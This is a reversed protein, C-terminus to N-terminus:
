HQLKRRTTYKQFAIGLFIASIGLASLIFPFLLSDKFVNYSLYGLYIYIGIAGFVMVVRAGFIMIAQRELAIALGLFGLNMLLYYAHSWDGLTFESTLIGWFVVLGMIGFVVIVRRQLIIALGLLGLNVLLYYVHPWEWSKSTIAGWFTILGFLYFWFSYAKLKKSADFLYALVLMTIGFVISVIIREDWSFNPGYIVATIDMSLFWLSYAVPAALFPFPVFKMALLGVLMTALEIIVWSGKIWSYYDQYSGPDGQPWFGTIRELAYVGLPVMGVAMTYMLGGPVKLENRFYLQRGLLIFVLGYVISVALLGTGGLFEWASTVFWTMAGIVVLAGLYYLVVSINSKSDKHKRQELGTLLAECQEETLINEEIAWKLKAKTLQMLLKRVGSCEVVIEFEM